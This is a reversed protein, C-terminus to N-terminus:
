RLANVLGVRSSVALKRYVSKLQSRVTEPSVGRLRAIENVTGGEIVAKAVEAESRSLAGLNAGQARTEKRILIAVSPGSLFERMPDSTMRVFTLEWDGEAHVRHRSVAAGFFSRRLLRELDDQVESVICFLRGTPAHCLGCGKEIYDQASTNFSRPYGGEGVIVMGIHSVDLLVGERGVAPSETSTNRYFAFARKLHPALETFLHAYAQSNRHDERSMLSTLIFSQGKERFITIGAGGEMGTGVLYENYFQTKRLKVPDYMADSTVGLGVPRIAARAMWPNLSSYTRNYAQIEGDEYGATLSMAGSNAVADHFMLTTKGYAMGANLRDLFQQWSTEGVVAGYIMEILDSQYREDRVSYRM